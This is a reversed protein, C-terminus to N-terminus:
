GRVMRHVISHTKYGMMEAIKRISYGQAQLRLAEKVKDEKTLPKTITGSGQCAPCKIQTM